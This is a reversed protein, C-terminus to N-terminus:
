RLNNMFDEFIRNSLYDDSSAEPHWQIGVLYKYKPNEFAEILGDSSRANVVLGEGLDKVGQHHLSNVTWREEKILNYLRQNKEFIVDHSAFKDKGNRHIIKKSFQSQLDEYLTGGFYINILQFGRCIGLVPIDKKLAHDLFELCAKDFSFDYDEVLSNDGGGYIAPDFDDGGTFIIGDIRDLLNIYDDLNGDSLNVTTYSYNNRHVNRIYSNLSKDNNSVLAINKQVFFKNYTFVGVVFILVIFTITRVLKFLRRM